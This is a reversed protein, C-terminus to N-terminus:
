RKADPIVVHYYTFGFQQWKGDQNQLEIYGGFTGSDIDINNAGM